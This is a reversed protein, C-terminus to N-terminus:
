FNVTTRMGFVWANPIPAGTPDFPNAVNGGPHFIYQVDPQITWGPMIQAQYTFEVMAEYDQVPRPVGSFFIQDQEAASVADSIRAYAFAVGFSDNPRASIMGNLNVGTDAYFDILNRDGPSGSIRAFVGVGKAADGGPLHYIMQDIVGYIGYDGSLRAAIGSSMPSALPRGLTDFREDNFRGFHDWAGLKVTGPLDKTLNFTHQAEGILLPPDTVRFNVGNLDRRQPNGNGPGAPDGNFLGLLFAWDDTPTFKFRVAPTALPYAPGGSPLDSATIVPWGTSGNLFLEGYNTTIFESDAGLQGLRLAFKDGFKQEFWAEYLRITPTAEIFSVPLLNGVYHASLGHGAIWYGNAHIAAGEWGILKQLDLDVCAELRNEAITGRRVGGSVDSFVEGIENIQFQLGKAALDARAGTPDGFVSGTVCPPPTPAAAPASKDLDAAHAAGFSVLMGAAVVLARWSLSPCEAMFGGTKQALVFNSNHCSRM